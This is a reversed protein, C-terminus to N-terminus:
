PRIVAVRRQGDVRRRLSNWISLWRAKAYVPFGLQSAAWWSGRFRAILDDNWDRMRYGHDITSAVDHNQRAPPPYVGYISLKQAWARRIDLDNPRVRPMPTLWKRAGANSLIYAATNVPQRTYRVLDRKQCINATLVLSRKVVSSMHIYDWGPPARHIALRCADLFDDALIADDELVVAYPLGEAVIKQAISLHSAYCGVEGASLKHPGTFEPEMWEPINRGEIASFREVTMGLLEFQDQMFSLRDTSRDLNILFTRISM